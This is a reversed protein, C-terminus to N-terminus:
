TKNCTGLSIQTVKMYKYARYVVYEFWVALLGCAIFVSIIIAFVIRAHIIAEKNHLVVIEHIYKAQSMWDEPVKILMISWIVIYMSLLAIGIANVILFPWYFSPNQKRQATIILVNALFSVFAGIRGPDERQEALSRFLAIGSLIMGVIGIIYAGRQVHMTKCCCRYQNDVSNM